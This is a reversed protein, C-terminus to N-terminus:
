RQEENSPTHRRVNVVLYIVALAAALAFWQLAYALHREPGFGAPRWERRYGDPEGADLLLIFPELPYGLERALAEIEPYAVVRPWSAGGAIEGGLKLGPRALLDVRGTVSREEGGVTVDPIHARTEGLPVWGRNVLVAAGGARKLPTLVYYGARGDVVMNDILFQRATDYQGQVRVRAYRPPMRDTELTMIAAREGAAFSEALTRKFAARELQWIGLALLVPLLVLVVLTPVLSPRFEFNGCRM